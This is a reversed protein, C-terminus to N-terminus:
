DAQVILGMRSFQQYIGDDQVSECVVDAIEKLEKCANGMAVGINAAQIMQFDNMSDGFAVTDDMSMGYYLCVKEMGEGKDMGRRIIEGNFVSTSDGYPHVVINFLETLEPKAAELDNLDTCTFCLKYAGNHPYADFRKIDLGSEMERQMRILESNLSDAEQRKLLEEMATDTYIGEPSEIRCFIHNKHFVDICYQVLSEDMLCDFIVNGDAEVHSGASAVIGDFGCDLIEQGIIPMNRGTCIFVKHGNKRALRIAEKVKESPKGLAEVLTGDIDLFIIKKKTDM